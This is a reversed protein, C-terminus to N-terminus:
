IGGFQNGRQNPNNGNPFQPIFRGPQFTNNRRPSTQPQSYPNGLFQQTTGTGVSPAQLQPIPNGLFQQTTGTGVPPIQPQPIPNGLPQQTTGTGVPNQQTNGPVIQAFVQKNSSSELIGFVPLALISGASAVGILSLLKKLTTKNNQRSM